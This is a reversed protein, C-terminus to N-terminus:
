QQFDNGLDLLYVTLVFYSLSHFGELQHQIKLFDKFLYNVPDLTVNVLHNDVVPVFATFINTAWTSTSVCTICYINTRDQAAHHLPQSYDGSDTLLHRSPPRQMTCTFSGWISCAEPKLSLVCAFCVGASARDCKRAAFCLQRLLSRLSDDAAQRCMNGSHPWVKSDSSQLALIFLM